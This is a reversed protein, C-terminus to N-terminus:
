LGALNGGEARNPPIHLPPPLLESVVRGKITAPAATASNVNAELHAQALGASLEWEYGSHQVAARGPVGAQTSGSRDAEPRFNKQQELNQCRFCCFSKLGSTPRTQHGWFLATELNPPRLVISTVPVPSGLQPEAGALDVSVAGSALKEGVLEEAPM